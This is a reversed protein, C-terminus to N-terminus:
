LDALMMSNFCITEYEGFNESGENLCDYDDLYACIAENFEDQPEIRAYQVANAVMTVMLVPETMFQDRYYALLSKKYPIMSEILVSNTPTELATIIEHLKM